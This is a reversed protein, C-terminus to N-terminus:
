RKTRNGPFNGQHQLEVITNPKKNVHKRPIQSNPSPYFYIGARLANVYLVIMFFYEIQTHHHASSASAPPYQTWPLGPCKSWTSPYFHISPRVSPPHAPSIAWHNLTLVPHHELPGTQNEVSVHHSVLVMMTGPTLYGRRAKEPVLWESPAYVYICLFM